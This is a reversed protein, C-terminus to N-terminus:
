IDISNIDNEFKDLLELYKQKKEESWLDYHNGFKEESLKHKVQLIWSVVPTEFKWQWKKNNEGWTLCSPQDGYSGAYKFNDPLRVNDVYMNELTVLQDQIIEQDKVITGNDAKGYVEVTLSHEGDLLEILITVCEHSSSFKHEEYIDDDISIRIKPWGNCESAKFEFGLKNM